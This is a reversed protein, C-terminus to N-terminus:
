HLGNLRRRLERRTDPVHGLLFNKGLMVQRRNAQGDQNANQNQNQNQTQNQNPNQNQTQSQNDPNVPIPVRTEIEVQYTIPDPQVNINVTPQNRGAQAAGQQAQGESSSQGSTSGGTNLPRRTISSQVVNIHAQLCIWRKVQILWVFVCKNM